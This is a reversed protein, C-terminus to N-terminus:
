PRAPGAGGGCALPDVDPRNYTRRYPRRRGAVTAPVPCFGVGDPRPTPRAPLPRGGGAAASLDAGDTTIEVTGDLDTRFVKAGRRVLREVTAASPHGYPNGAGASIVAVAASAQEVFEDTTATASGHHAVKLVDIPRSDATLGARLLHGDIEQEVDGTLVFRRNGFSVDLVLSVNNIAKGTNPPRLPVTGPLPWRVDMRIGDLWLTDGAAVVRSARGLETLQRRYAADGPGPGVMGPEVIERVAYRSLVAALGAVHDEHPHTLVVVDIRRDWPPIRSDLLGVLRDPDPGGDILARGGAPGQLLIADGQGVDLVFLHMRGDPRAASAAVVAIILAAAAGALLAPRPRRRNGVSEPHAIARAGDAVAARPTRRQAVVGITAAVGIAALANLPEGLAVTAFPLGASIEAVGIMAGIVLSGALALPALLLAPVGLAIVAGAALAIATLLMAPAVLPAVLLNALPAVISLTGFHALILPLTAVQAATSVALSELLWGPTRRPLARALRDRMRSGWALLGATAAVSLQFGVDDITTPEVALLGAVTLGLAATASGRRGSERALLVVSAMVAARLIGPSAGAFIAYGCIALLVLVSRPRHGIPALLASVLAGLMAIHWGSIAVVHSLGSARFDAALERSVLDRLGITMAAALGAQPEPLSTSIAAAAGRRLQELGAMPSGDVGHRVLERARTTYGIGARALFEGFGGDTPAPELPGGFRILDGPAVPPYRPLTAYVREGPEPPRLELVARQTGAAPPSLSLVIAEHEWARQAAAEAPGLTAPALTTGGLAARLLVLTAGALGAALAPSRRAGILGLACAVVAVCLLVPSSLGGHVALLAAAVAGAALSAARAM